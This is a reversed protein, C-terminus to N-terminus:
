TIHQIIHDTANNKGIVDYVPVTDDCMEDTYPTNAMGITVGHIRVGKARLEDRLEIDRESMHCSGDTVLVIDGQKFEPVTKIIEQCRELGELITTGGGFFHTAMDTLDNPDAGKKPFFWDAIQGGSSFEVVAADRKERHAVSMLAMSLARAWINNQGGMSGSGDLCVIIPGSGAEAHGVTEYQLLAGEHYDRYFKRKLLSNGLKALEFPLILELDKGLEVGVVEDRGGQVRNARQFRFDRYLRGYLKAMEFLDPNNRWKMALEIQANANVRGDAGAGHGPLSCAVEAAEKASKSANGVAQAAAMGIGASQQQQDLSQLQKRAAAKAKAHEKILQKLEDPIGQGNAALERAKARLQELLSEHDEIGSEADAMMQARAAHEKLNTQLENELTEQAAMTALASAVSDNRTLPRTKLFDDNLVYHSMIERTLQASPRVKDTTMVDVEDSGTTHAFFLDSRMDAAGEFPREKVVNGQDDVEQLILEREVAKKFRPADDILDELWVEDIGNHEVTFRSLNAKPRKFKNLPNIRDFFSSAKEAVQGAYDQFSQMGGGEHLPAPGRPAVANPDPVSVTGDPNQTLGLGGEEPANPDGTAMAQADALAQTQDVAEAFVDESLEVPAEDPTQNTDDM